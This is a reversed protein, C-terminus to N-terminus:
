AVNVKNQRRSYMSQYIYIYIYIYTGREQTYYIGGTSRSGQLIHKTLGCVCKHVLWVGGTMDNILIM